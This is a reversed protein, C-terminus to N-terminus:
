MLMKRADVLRMFIREHGIVGGAGSRHLLFRRPFQQEGGGDGAPNEGEGADIEVALGAGLIEGV